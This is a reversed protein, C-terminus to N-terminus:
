IKEKGKTLGSAIIHAVRLAEPINSRTSTNRVIKKADIESIGAIQMYVVGETKGTHVKITKGTNKIIKWRKEYMPLHKLARKIKKFDPKERVIAIVPLGITNSLKKIDVINFGAFTVGNLVIVRLQSFHPSGNIMTGMKETADMGDIEIKTRMVGDFWYGGRYVVGIIDVMGKTHAIFAGDDIGLVRIESKIGRFTVINGESM